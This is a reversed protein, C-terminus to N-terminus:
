LKLRRRPRLLETTKWKLLWRRLTILLRPQRSLQRATANARMPTPRITFLEKIPKCRLRLAAAAMAGMAAARAAAMASALVAVPM